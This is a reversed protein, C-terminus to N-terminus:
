DLLKGQLPHGSQLNIAARLSSDSAFVCPKETPSAEAFM